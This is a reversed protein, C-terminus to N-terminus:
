GGFRINGRKLVIERPRKEGADLRCTFRQTVHGRASLRVAIEEGPRCRISHVAVYDDAEEDGLIVKTHQINAGKVKLKANAPRARVILLADQLVPKRQM